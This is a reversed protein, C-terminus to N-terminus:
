SSFATLTKMILAVFTVSTTASVPEDMIRKYEGCKQVMDPVPDACGNM